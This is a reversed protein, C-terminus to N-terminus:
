KAVWSSAQVTAPGLALGFVFVIGSVVSLLRRLPRTREPMSLLAIVGSASAYLVIRDWGARPLAMTLAGAILAMAGAAIVLWRIKFTYSDLYSRRTPFFSAGIDVVSQPVAISFGFAALFLAMGNAAVAWQPRSDALWGLSLPVALAATVAPLAIAFPLRKIAGHIQLCMRFFPSQMRFSDRYGEVAEFDNPELRVAERFTTQSAGAEGSHLLIAGLRAMLRASGPDEALARGVAQKAVDLQNLITLSEIRVAIATEDHPDIQLANEASELAEVYRNMAILLSARFSHLAAMESNLRLSDRNIKLARWPNGMAAYACALANLALADSPDSRVGRKASAIAEQPRNEAIWCHAILTHTRADDPDKALYQGLHIRAQAYRGSQM